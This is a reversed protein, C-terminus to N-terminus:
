DQPNKCVDEWLLFPEGTLASVSAFLNQRMQFHRAAHDFVPVRILTSSCGDLLDQTQWSFLVLCIWMKMRLLSLLSSMNTKTRNCWLLHDFRSVITLPLNMQCTPKGFKQSLEAFISLAFIDFNSMWVVLSSNRYVVDSNAQSRGLM